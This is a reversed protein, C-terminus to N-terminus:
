GFPTSFLDPLRRDDSLSASFGKGSSALHTLTNTVFAMENFARGWITIISGRNLSALHVFDMAMLSKPPKLDPGSNMLDVAPVFPLMRM